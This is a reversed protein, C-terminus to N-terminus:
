RPVFEVLQGASVPAFGRLCAHVLVVSSRLARGGPCPCAWTWRWVPPVGRATQPERSASERMLWRRYAVASGLQLHGVEGLSPRSGMRMICFGGALLGIFVWSVGAHHIMLILNFLRVLMLIM